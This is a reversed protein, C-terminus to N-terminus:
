FLFGLGGFLLATLFGKKTFLFVIGILVSWVLVGMAGQPNTFFHIAGWTLLLGLSGWPFVVRKFWLEGARQFSAALLVVLVFEVLYYLNQFISALWAQGGYMARFGTYERWLQPFVLGNLRATGFGYISVFVVSAAMWVLDQRNIQCRVLDDLVGRKKAWRYFIFAGALWLLITVSWHFLVAYWNEPWGMVLTTQGDVMSTLFFVLFEVGLLAFLLMGILFYTLGQDSKTKLM